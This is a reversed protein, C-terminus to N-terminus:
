IKKCKEIGKLAADSTNEINNWIIADCDQKSKTCYDKRCKNNFEGHCPCIVLKIFNISDFMMKIPISHKYYCKHSNVCINTTNWQNKPCPKLNKNFIIKMKIQNEKLKKHKLRRIIYEWGDIEKCAAKDKSCYNLSCRHNLKHNFDCVSKPDSLYCYEGTKLCTVLSIIFMFSLILISM